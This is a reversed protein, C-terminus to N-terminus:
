KSLIKLFKKKEIEKQFVVFHKLIFLSRGVFIIVDTFMATQVWPIALIYNTFILLELQQQQHRCSSQTPPAKMLSRFARRFNCSVTTTDLDNKLLEGFYWHSDNSLLYKKM